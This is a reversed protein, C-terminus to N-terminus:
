ENSDESDYGGHISKLQISESTAQSESTCPLRYIISLMDCRRGICSLGRGSRTNGNGNWKGDGNLNAARNHVRGLGSSIRGNASAKTSERRM